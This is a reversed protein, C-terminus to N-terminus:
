WQQWERDRSGAADDGHDQGILAALQESTPLTGPEYTENSLVYHFAARVSEPFVPRGLRVSQVKAWALRYVALQLEASALEAGSPRRGTKWDVVFWGDGDRFVADIRGEFVHGGLTVSYAGEVTEPTRQAWDSDLFRQKLHDLAPDTLTADAAGPLDDEDLLSAVGYHKEVWNHFATGRKTYPRPEMPVPRRRRRAFEARDRSLSVAETATLRAGLPVVVEPVASARYEDILVSTEQAWQDALTGADPTRRDSEATTVGERAARVRRIGDAVAAAGDREPDTLVPRPWVATPAAPAERHFGAVLDNRAAPNDPVMVQDERHHPGKELRRLETKSYEMGLDSWTVISEPHGARARDRLLTLAVSPDVPKKDANNFAAGSVLLTQESRTVAVYFLRDDEQAGHVGLEVRYRDQAEVVGKRDEVDSLDLVPAGTVDDPGTAPDGRLGSPLIRANTTWSTVGPRKVADAYTKRTAHPVAVIEWELGKAKHVTLLQVCDTRVEVEGPDLGKERASASRLYDVLAAPSSASLESFSRVVEAFRDLHSTGISRDSSRHYRTLVETRVGTMNEIDAVLDTLPKALSHRRLFRLERGLEGLRRAGEASMGFDEMGRLDALAEALGVSVRNSDRDIEALRRRVTALAPSDGPQGTVLATLGGADSSDGSGGAMDGDAPRADRRSLQDVRRALALLDAAGINWRVGTVLRLLAIDDAPDVLVRLTAFVDTVEPVDLLGPGATMDVPVGRAHLLDHIPQADANKRLLVAASFPAGGNAKQERHERYRAALDDALWDLEEERTDFWGLKVEGTGAGPRASLPSVMPTDTNMSWRSVTNALDLVRAPNRWSTTLELIPAPGAVTPFDTRFHALNAATAGRFGYISQMPDGVATVTLAPDAGNGFLNQLLVRQAHGTDQYEDLMVVRFRRRQAEGVRNHSQVLQAAKSMQQGFTMLNRESLTDRYAAVLELLERRYTLAGDISDLTADVGKLAKGDRDPLGDIEAATVRCEEAVRDIGVLHNDMEDALDLMDDIISPLSRATTFGTPWDSVVDRAIMWRETDSIIRGAPEMPLLLGYERVVSGAYADYTSVTPIINHLAEHRPDDVPLTDLFGSDALTQLRRRIRQGLERAAKRTFTLGLVQEPAVIGNAVLWVVRAAMTETKGAGAGAVVLTPGPQAGIVAAQQPTPGFQQGLMTSLENPSITGM